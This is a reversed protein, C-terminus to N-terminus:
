GPEMAFLEGPYKLYKRVISAIESDNKEPEAFVREYKEHLKPSILVYTLVGALRIRKSHGLMGCNLMAKRMDYNTSFAKGKIASLCYLEVERCSLAVEMEEYVIREAMEGAKVEEATRSESIMESKKSTMPAAEGPGVYDNFTEAWHQIISLGGSGLWELLDDFKKRPWKVEALSPVLWRRDADEIKMAKPSNSSAYFHAWNEIRYRKENKENVMIDKDTVYNKLKNYAKWSHGSYIESVVVLRRNAMWSNFQSDVIDTETPFGVNDNGVLPALIMNSLTTKGIGQTVSIMLLGYLMRIDPRAILTACWRLVQRREEEDEILYRMFELFPEVDGPMSKFHSPVHMNIASTSGETIKRGKNDPRYCLRSMRGSYHKAILKCTDSSDSFSSLMTNIAKESGRVMPREINVFMEAEHVYYWEETVHERLVITPKGRANNWVDTMWTAVHVCSDFTPGIYFQSGHIKKYMRKPFPDALDFSAPWEDTFQVHFSQMRLARSIDRVAGRGAKDNDSVIYARKVGIQALAAWDVRAAHHAGGIWGVHAGTALEDSWPHQEKNALMRTIARAAKAGEHIFVTTHPGIQDLGWLPLLGPPEVARWRDDSWYTWPVYRKDKFESEADIRLQLMTINGFTDRFEFVNDVKAQEIMKPLNIAKAPKVYQPFSYNSWVATIDDREQQSPEIEVPAFIEGSDPDFNIRHVEKEYKGQKYSVAASFLGKTEAKIRRLYRAVEPIDFLDSIM